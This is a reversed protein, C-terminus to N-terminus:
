LGLKIWYLSSSVTGYLKTVKCFLKTVKHHFRQNSSFVFVLRFMVHQLFTVSSAFFRSHLFTFAYVLHSIRLFLLRFYVSFSCLSKSQDLAQILCNHAGYCFLRYCRTSIQLEYGIAGMFSFVNIKVQFRFGLVHLIDFSRALNCLTNVLQRFM